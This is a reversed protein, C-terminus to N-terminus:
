QLKGKSAAKVMKIHKCNATAKPCNCSWSCTPVFDDVDDGGHSQEAIVRFFVGKSADRVRFVFEQKTEALWVCQDDIIEM